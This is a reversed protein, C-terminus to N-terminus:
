ASTGGEEGLEIVFDDLTLTGINKPPMRSARARRTIWISAGVSAILAV